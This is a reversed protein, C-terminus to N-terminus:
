DFRNPDNRTLGLIALPMIACASLGFLAGRVVAELTPHPLQTVVLGAVFLAFCLALIVWCATRTTIPRKAFHLEYPM